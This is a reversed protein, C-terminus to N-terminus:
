SDRDAGLHWFAVGSFFWFLVTTITITVTFFIELLFVASIGVTMMSAMGLLLEYEIKKGKYRKLYKCLNFVFIGALLIIPAAGLIGCGVLLAVYGNHPQYGTKAIYSDPRERLAYSVMNRPSLGTVPHDRWLSLASTWIAIRNNSIDEGTDERELSIGEEPSYECLGIYPRVHVTVDALGAFAYSSLNFYLFSAAFIGVAALVGSLHWKEGRDIRSNRWMFYGLVPIVVLFAVMATRSGSLVIYISHLIASATYWAKLGKKEKYLQILILSFVIMLLSAVAAYNPDTFIGFLREDFFGQRKDYTDNYDPVIYRSQVLFQGISILVAAGHIVLLSNMMRKLGRRGCVVSDGDRGPIMSTFLLLQLGMWVLAKLNESIGYDRFIVSSILCAVMFFALLYYEKKLYRRYHVLLEALCLLGGAAAGAIYGLGNVRNSVLQVFCVMRSLLLFSTFVVLYWSKAEDLQKEYKLLSKM